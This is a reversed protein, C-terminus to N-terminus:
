SVYLSLVVVVVVVVVLLSLSLSLSLSLLLLAVAFRWCVRMDYEENNGKTLFVVETCVFWM